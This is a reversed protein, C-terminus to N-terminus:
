PFCIKSKILIDINRIESLILQLRNPLNEICDIFDTLFPSTKILTDEKINKVHFTTMSNTASLSSTAGSNTISQATSNNRKSLSM